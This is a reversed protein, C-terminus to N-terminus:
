PGLPHEAALAQESTLAHCAQLVLVTQIACCPRALSTPGPPAHVGWCLELRWNESTTLLRRVRSCLLLPKTSFFLVITTVELPPHSGCRRECGTNKGWIFNSWAIGEYFKCASSQQPLYYSSSPFHTHKLLRQQGTISGQNNFCLLLWLLLVYGISNLYPQFGAGLLVWCGSLSVAALIPQCLIPSYLQYM